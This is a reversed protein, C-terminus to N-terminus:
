AITWGDHASGPGGRLLPRHRVPGPAGPGGCGALRDDEVPEAVPVISSQLVGSLPDQGGDSVTGTLDCWGDVHASIQRDARGCRHQNLCRAVGAQHHDTVAAEAPEGSQKDPEDADLRDRVSDAGDDDHAIGLGALPRCPRARRPKATPTRKAPRAPGRTRSVAVETASSRSTATSSTAPAM